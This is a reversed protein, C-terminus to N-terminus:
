VIIKLVLQEIICSHHKKNKGDMNYNIGVLLVKGSYEKLIGLSLTKVKIQRIASYASQNYKLEIIMAPREGANLRPIFVFNLM